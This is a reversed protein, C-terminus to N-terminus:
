SIQYTLKASVTGFIWLRQREHQLQSWKFKRDPKAAQNTDWQLVCDLRSTTTWSSFFYRGSSLILTAFYVLKGHYCTRKKRLQFFGSRGRWSLSCFIISFLSKWVPTTKKSFETCFNQASRWSSSTVIEKEESFQDFLFKPVGKIHGTCKDSIGPTFTYPVHPGYLHESLAAQQSM